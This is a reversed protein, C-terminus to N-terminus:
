LYFHNQVNTIGAPILGTFNAKYMNIAPDLQLASNPINITKTSNYCTNSSSPNANASGGGAVAYTSVVRTTAYNNGNRDRYNGGNNPATDLGDTCLNADHVTVSKTSTNETFYLPVQVTRITAAAEDVLVYGVVDGNSAGLDALDPGRNSLASVSIASLTQVILIAALAGISIRVKRM